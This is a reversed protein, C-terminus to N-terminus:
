CGAPMSKICVDYSRQRSSSGGIANIAFSFTALFIKQLSKVDEASAAIIYAYSTPFFSLFGFVLWLPPLVHLDTEFTLLRQLGFHFAKAGFTLLHFDQGGISGLTSRITGNIITCPDPDVSRNPPPPSEMANRVRSHSPTVGLFFSGVVPLLLIRKVRRYTRCTAIAAGNGAKSISM